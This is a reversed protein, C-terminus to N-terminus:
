SLRYIRRAEGLGCSEAFWTICKLANAAARAANTVAALALGTSEEVAALVSSLPLATDDDAGDEFNM